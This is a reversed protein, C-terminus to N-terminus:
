FSLISRIKQEVALFAQRSYPDVVVRVEAPAPVDEALSAAFREALGDFFSEGLERDTKGKSGPLERLRALDPPELRMRYGGRDRYLPETSSVLDPRPGRPVRPRDREERRSRNSGERNPAPPPSLAPAMPAPAAPALPAPAAPAPAAPAPPPVASAGAPTLVPPPEIRAETLIGAFPAPEPAAAPEVPPSMPNDGAPEDLFPAEDGGREDEASM